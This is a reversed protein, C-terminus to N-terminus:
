RLFRSTQFKVKKILNEFDRLEPELGVQQRALLIQSTQHLEIPLLHGPCFSDARRLPDHQIHIATLARDISLLFLASVVSIELRDAIM